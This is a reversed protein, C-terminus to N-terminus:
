YMGSAHFFQASWYKDLTTVLITFIMSLTLEKSVKICLSNLGTLFAYSPFHNTTVAVFTHILNDYLAPRRIVHPGVNIRRKICWSLLFPAITANIMHQYPANHPLPPTPTCHQSHPKQPPTNLKCADRNNHRIM